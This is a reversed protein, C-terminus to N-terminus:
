VYVRPVRDGICCVLEYNFRGSLAGLDEATIQEAGDRGLLTVTMGEAAEPIETVDVMLQDMCVRGLIPAKRGCILVHGVGSLSRPYGDGYGVPITAIRTNERDTVYTGGYSVTTGAPVDKIYVIRARWSLAPRLRVGRLSDMAAVEDSPWLGYQTIGARVLKMHTDPHILIGASNAIHPWPIRIGEEELRSLFGRFISYQEQTPVDSEEDARAFHSFIGEVSLGPLASVWRVFRVGRADPTIGIRGMGTDLAIHIKLTRGESVAADSLQRAMDERFVAPRIEQRVLERYCGPFCYGLLILPKRIGKRRLAAAEEYTALAIGRVYPLQEMLTAVAAAGHGYGDTKLVSIIGTEEPLMDKMLDMNARIASLDVEAWTRRPLLASVAEGIDGATMAERGIRAAATDGAQAHRLVAVRAAHVADECVALYAGCIGALVDGSGATAMGSNGRINLFVPGGSADCVMTRADKCVVTCRAASALERVEQETNERCASVSKHRLAAFEALHPTLILELDQRRRALKAEFGDEGALLRLADADMVIGRLKPCYNAAELLAQTLAGATEGRGLGPGIVAVDAWALDQKLLEAAQRPDGEEYTTLLLEPLRSQVIVRNCEPTFVRVMGAGARACSEACLIAAGCMNRSGAIILVKGFTGKNGDPARGPLLDAAQESELTFMGPTEELSRETIGIEACRLRGCHAAGPFMYHGRKYFAFTVTEDCHPACGLISGDDASVGSPIDVAVVASGAAHLEEMYRVAAAPAGTLPRGLGTGFLADIVVAPAATEDQGDEGFVGVQAGYQALIQQQVAFLSGERVTGPLCLFRVKRGRDRLIRGSALGDAGNNGTGALVLIDTGHRSGRDRLIEEAADAVALAAREMLVISPIGIVRSTYDDCRKMEDATLLYQM